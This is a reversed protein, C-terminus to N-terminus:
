HIVVFCLANSPDCGATSIPFWAIESNDEPSKRPFNDEGTYLFLFRFDHHLHYGEQKEMNEAIGHTNIDLPVDDSLSSSILSLQSRPIDTEELVERYVSELISKDTAEVHGGPPLPKKHAKHEIMLVKTLSRHVIIASGTVHGQLNKRDIQKKYEKNNELFALLRKQLAQEEPFCELYRNTLNSNSIM